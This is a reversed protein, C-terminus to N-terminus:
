DMRASRGCECSHPETSARLHADDVVVGHAGEASVRTRSRQLLFSQGPPPPIATRGCECSHPETSADGRRKAGAIALEGEASM